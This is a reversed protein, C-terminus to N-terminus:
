QQPHEEGSSGMQELDRKTFHVVERERVPNQYARELATEVSGLNIAETQNLIRDGIKVSGDVQGEIDFFTTTEIVDHGGDRSPVSRTGSGLLFHLRGIDYADRYVGKKTLSAFEAAIQPVVSSDLARIKAQRETEQQMLKRLHEEQEKTRKQEAEAKEKATRTEREVKQRRLEEIFGM